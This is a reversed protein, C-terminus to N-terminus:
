ASFLGSRALDPVAPYKGTSAYDSDTIDVINPVPLLAIQHLWLRLTTILWQSADKM